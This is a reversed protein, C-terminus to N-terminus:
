NRILTVPYDVFKADSSIIAMGEEIAQAIIMRDFPDRHHLPLESLWHAHAADFPLARFGTEDVLERFRGPLELKRIAQKIRLEAISVSSVFVEHEGSLLLSIVSASLKSRSTITWFVIQTDALLRV